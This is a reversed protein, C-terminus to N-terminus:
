ATAHAPSAGHILVCVVKTNTGNTANLVATLLALQNGEPELAMRDGVEGNGCSKCCGCAMTGIVVVAVDAQIAAHVAASINEHALPADVGGGVGATYTTAFGRAKFAAAVTVV